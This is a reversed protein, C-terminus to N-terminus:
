GEHQPFLSSETQQEQFEQSIRSMLPAITLFVWYHKYFIQTLSLGAIFLYLITARSYWKEWRTTVRRASLLMAVFFAFFCIGGLIGINAMTYFLDNHVVFGRLSRFCGIGAGLPNTGLFALTDRIFSIRLLLSEQARTPDSLRGMVTESAFYPIMLMAILGLILLVASYALFSPFNKSVERLFFLPLLLTILMAIIGGRSGTLLMSAALIVTVLLWPLRAKLIPDRRFLYFSALLALGLIVCYHNADAVADEVAVTLRGSEGTNLGLGTLKMVLVVSAASLAYTRLAWLLSGTDQLITVIFVSLIVMQVLTLIYQFSTSPYPSWIISLGCITTIALLSLTAPNKARIPMRTFIMNLVTGLAFIIGIAKEIGWDPGLSVISGLPLSGLLVSLGFSPRVVTGTFTLIGVIAAALMKQKLWFGMAGAILVAIVYSIVFMKWLPNPQSQSLPFENGSLPLSSEYTSNM